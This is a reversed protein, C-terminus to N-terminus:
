RFVVFLFVGLAIAVLLVAALSLLARAIVSRGTQRDDEPWLYSSGGGMWHWLLGRSAAWRDFLVPLGICVWATGVVLSVVGFTVLAGAVSWRAAVYPTTLRDWVTSCCCSPRSAVGCSKRLKM